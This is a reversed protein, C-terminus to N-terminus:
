ALQSTLMAPAHPLALSAEFTVTAAAAAASLKVRPGTSHILREIRPGTASHHHL